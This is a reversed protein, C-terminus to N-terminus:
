SVTRFLYVGNEFPRLLQYACRRYLAQAATNNNAAYLRIQSCGHLHAEQDLVTLALTAYGKRRHSPSIIFDNLFLHQIGETEEVIYWLVGVALHDHEIVKLFSGPLLEDFEQEAQSFAAEESLHQMLERAYDQVSYRRFAALEDAHMDRLHISM